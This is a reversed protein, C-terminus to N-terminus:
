EKAMDQMMRQIEPDNKKGQMVKEFAELMSPDIDLESPDFEMEGKDGKQPKMRGMIKKMIEDETMGQDHLRQFMEDMKQDFESGEM